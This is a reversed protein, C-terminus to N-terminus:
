DRVGEILNKIGEGRGTMEWAETVRYFPTVTSILPKLVVLRREVVEVALAFDDAGYRFSGMVRLEKESLALMPVRPKSEGLGAQVYSGGPRVLYIGLQISSQAGSAEIVADVSGEDLDFRHKIAVANEEATASKDLLYAEVGLYERAFDVRAEVIDFLIARHAGFVRVAVAACLLGVTGCGTVIVTEGPKIQALRAGHVAVALPELLVVEQLSIRDAAVRHVFDEPAKWFKCLLGHTNPPAAAFRVHPCLNYRGEKCRDCRRCPHGPEIAVRDGVKVRTVSTGVAAVTGSAEHGMVLPATIHTQIGGHRWFHVLVEHPDTLEPVPQDEIEAKGPGHLFCSPNRM